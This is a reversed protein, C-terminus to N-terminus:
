TVEIFDAFSEIKVDQWRIASIRYMVGFNKYQCVIKLLQNDNM